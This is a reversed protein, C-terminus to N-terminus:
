SGPGVFGRVPMEEWFHRNQQKGDIDDGIQPGLSNPPEIPIAL